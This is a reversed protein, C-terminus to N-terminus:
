IQHRSALAVSAWVFIGWLCTIVCLVIVHLWAPNSLSIRIIYFDFPKFSFANFPPYCWLCVIWGLLTPEVSKIENKLYKSEILYGLSFIVTDVFILLQVLYANIRLCEVPIISPRKCHQIPGRHGMVGNHPYLLVEGHNNSPWAKWPCEMIATKRDLAM